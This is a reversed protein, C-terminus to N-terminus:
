PRGRPLGRTTGFPGAVEMEPRRVEYRLMEELSRPPQQYSRVSADGSPPAVGMSPSPVGGGPSPPIGSSPLSTTQPTRYMQPESTYGATKGPHPAPPTMPQAMGPIPGTQGEMESMLAVLFEEIPTPM